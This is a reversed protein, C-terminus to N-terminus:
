AFGVWVNEADEDTVIRVQRELSIARGKNPTWLDNPIGLHAMRPYEAVVSAFPTKRDRYGELWHTDASRRHYEDAFCLVGGAHPFRERFQEEVGTKLFSDPVVLLYGEHARDYEALLLTASKLDPDHMNLYTPLVYAQSYTRDSSGVCLEGSVVAAEAPIEVPSSFKRIPAIQLICLPWPEVPDFFETAFEIHAGHEPGYGVRRELELGDRFVREVLAKPFAHSEITNSVLAERHLQIEGQVISDSDEQEGRGGTIRGDGKDYAFTPVNRLTDEVVATGLSDKVVSLKAIDRRATNLQGAYLPKFSHHPRANLNLNEPIRGIAPQILLGPSASTGYERELEEAQQGAGALVVKKVAKLFQVPRNEGVGDEWSFCTKGVGPLRTELSDEGELAGRVALPGYFERPCTEWFREYKSYIWKLLSIEETSFRAPEMEGVNGTGLRGNRELFGEAFEPPIYISPIPYSLKLEHILDATELLGRAKGVFKAGRPAFFGPKVREFDEPKM